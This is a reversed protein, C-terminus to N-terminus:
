IPAASGSRFRAALSAVPAPRIVAEPPRRLSRPLDPGRGFRMVLDPRRGPFGALAAVDPRFRAVEVPQNLFATKLGRAAAELAFRQCARGAAFWGAPSDEHAAIVALGASSRVHGAYKDNEAEAKFGSEFFADAIWGPMVPNGSAGTYLGDRTRAAEVRNFRLWHKLEAVFAPDAMQATNGAVVLELMREMAAPETLLAIDADAGGAAALARLDTAPAPAGDYDARVSMRRPIAAFRAGAQAPAPELGIAIREAAFDVATRLGSARAATDLNEAACGLSAYLHHDDPDVVPTRRGFDPTLAIEREALTFRWPQTNHGNAALTAYHVLAHHSQPFAGTAPEAPAYTREALADYRGAEQRRWAYLGGASLVAAGGAGLIVQRRSPQAM